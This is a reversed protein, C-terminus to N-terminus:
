GRQLPESYHHQEPHASQIYGLDFVDEVTLDRELYGMRKLVPIFDMTSTIYESPLAACYRPSVSFVELVFEEDVVKVQASVARAASRPENIILNCAREHLEIFRQILDPSDLLSEAVVIGYSPNCPWILRPPLATVQRYERRALVALPPTGFAAAIEDSAMADPILDAWPYNKMTTNNLAYREILSRAIVDHISGASPAGIACGAFQRMTEAVESESEAARYGQRAILVTGEMHGGAVCKLSIGRGIGIMAPPLGIYGLDLAGSSFAEVMAPGTGFLNWRATIGLTEEMWGFHKLIHSTHYMTSLYGIRLQNM